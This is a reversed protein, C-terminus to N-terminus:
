HLGRAGGCSGQRYGKEVGWWCRGIERLYFWGRVQTARRVRGSHAGRASGSARVAGLINAIRSQCRLLFSPMEDNDPTSRLALLSPLPPASIRNSAYQCTNWGPAMLLRACNEKVPVYEQKCIQSSQNRIVGKYLKLLIINYTGTRCLKGRWALNGRAAFAAWHLVLPFFQRVAPPM